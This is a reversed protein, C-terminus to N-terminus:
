GLEDLALNLRLVHVGDEGLFGLPRGDTHADVLGLVVEVDLGRASAVRPAQLRANAVSIHPDLGSGSATVADVPVLATAPLGNRERYDAARAEVVALLDPNTPGLNSPGSATADYGDGAASPRPHFSGSGSFAQGILASGVPEGDRRVLSGNAEHAFALQALGTVALPYAVGVLVTFVLVARVAALLQARM